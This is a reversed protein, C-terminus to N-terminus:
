QPTSTLAAMLGDGCTKSCFKVAIAEDPMLEEAEPLPTKCRPPMRQILAMANRACRPCVGFAHMLALLEEDTKNHLVTSWRESEPNRSVVYLDDNETKQQETNGEGTKLDKTDPHYVAYQQMTLHVLMEGFAAAQEGAQELDKAHQALSEALISSLVTRDISAPVKQTHIADVIATRLANCRQQFEEPTTKGEKLWQELVRNMFKDREKGAKFARNEITKQKWWESKRSM